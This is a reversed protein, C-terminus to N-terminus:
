GNGKICSKVQLLLSMDALEYMDVKFENMQKSTNLSGNDRTM